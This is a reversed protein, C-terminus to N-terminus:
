EGVMLYAMFDREEDPSMWRPQAVNEIVGTAVEMGVLEGEFILATDLTFQRNALDPQDFYLNGLGYHVLTTEEGDDLLAYTQPRHAQTGFVADAGLDAIFQFDNIQREIPTRREYEAYQVSVMVVDVQAKLAPIAESLWERECFTAGPTSETALAIDPGNWNCALL